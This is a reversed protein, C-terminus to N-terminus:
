KGSPMPSANQLLICKSDGRSRPYGPYSPPLVAPSTTSLNRTRIGAPAVPSIEEGSNVKHVSEEETDTEDRTVAIARLLGRENQWIHPHCTVGFCAYM